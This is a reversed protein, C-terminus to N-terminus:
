NSGTPGTARRRQVNQLSRMWRIEVPVALSCELRMICNSNSVDKNTAELVLAKLQGLCENIRERRRREILPKKIQLLIFTVNLQQTALLGSRLVYAM